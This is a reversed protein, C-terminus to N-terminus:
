SNVTAEFKDATARYTNNVLKIMKGEPLSDLNVISSIKGLQVMVLRLLESRALTYKGSFENHARAIARALSPNRGFTPREMINVGEDEGLTANLDPGLCYARWWAKRFVNRPRGLWRDYEPNKTPNQFRWAAVDPMLVLTLFNWTEEMGADAPSISLSNLLFNGVKVDFASLSPDKDKRRHPFGHEEAISLVGSRINRLVGATPLQTVVPPPYAKPHTATALSSCQEVDLELMESAVRM